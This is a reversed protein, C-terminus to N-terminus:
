SSEDGLNGVHIGELNPMLEWALRHM